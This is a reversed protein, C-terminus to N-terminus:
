ANVLTISYSIIQIANQAHPHIQAHQVTLLFLANYVVKVARKGINEM